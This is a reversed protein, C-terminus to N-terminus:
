VDVITFVSSTGFYTLILHMAANNKVRVRLLNPTRITIL